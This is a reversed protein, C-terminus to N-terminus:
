ICIDGNNAERIEKVLDFETEYVALVQGHEFLTVIGNSSNRSAVLKHQSTYYEKMRSSGDTNLYEICYAYGYRNYYDIKYVIGEDTNWEVRQM